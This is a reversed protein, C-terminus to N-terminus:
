TKSIPLNEVFSMRFITTHHKTAQKKKENKKRKLKGKQNGSLEM